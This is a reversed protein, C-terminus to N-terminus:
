TAKRGSSSIGDSCESRFLPIVFQPGRSADFGRSPMDDSAFHRVQDGQTERIATRYYAVARWGNTATSIRQQANECVFAVEATNGTNVVGGLIETRGGNLTHVVIGMGESKYGMLVLDSGDNLIMPEGREPNLQRAWVKQGKLSVPCRGHGNTGPIVGTTSAVNDFFVKGGPVSNRYFALTQTHLDKFCVTRRSAHTFTCHEGSWQEWALIREIFLPPAEDSGAILFGEADSQKLDIGAVLDCFGFDIHEVSGPVVVPSNMLYRGPEFRIDAAGSDLARQIAPSDDNIGNGIAGFARIGIVTGSPEYIPTEEIPLRPMGVSNTDGVICPHVREDIRGADDFGEVQVNSVYLSGAQRDIALPGTGKLVSDVLVTHGTPHICTLGVPVNEARINRLSLSIAGVTVGSVRQGRVVIDEAHAFMSGLGSDVHLGHDFGEVEIHKLLVGSYNSHGLQVGAFGEGDASVVRINRVAGSNNAFFDLGVAGPNGSGGNITLDECYNSMSVNSNEGPMYSIVPKQRGAGFGAARDQLRIVTQGAGAGRIRIQQNMDSGYTNLLDKHRYRLTDSVLYTGAPFTLTPLFPLRACCVCYAVGDRRHNEFGGPHRHHGEAPLAEVEALGQRFALRTANTIDDLAQLIAETCDRQGTPDANYPAECINLEAQM